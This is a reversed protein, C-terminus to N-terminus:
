DPAIAKGKITKVAGREIVAIGYGQGPRDPVRRLLQIKLDGDATVYLAHGVPYMGGLDVLVLQKTFDVEPLKEGPRWAEWLNKWAARSTLYGRAPAMDALKKEAVMGWWCNVPGVKKGGAKVLDGCAAWGCLAAFIFLPTLKSTM